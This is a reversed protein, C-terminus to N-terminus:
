HCALLKLQVLDSRRYFYQRAGDVTPGTVPLADIVGLVHRSSRGLASAIDALSVYTARFSNVADDFVRHGHGDIQVAILLGKRVLEYAVQQKLGLVRAADDVSMGLDSARRKAVRWALLADPDLCALGIPLVTAVAGYARLEGGLTSEVLWTAEAESLRAYKLTDRISRYRGVDCAVAVVHMRNVEAQSILWASARQNAIRSVAAKVVGKGILDRLRREPLALERAAAELSYAGQTVSRIAKVEEAGVTCTLRGSPQQATAAELLDAQVLHRVVSPSVDLSRAAAKITLRPHLAIAERRMLKNRQCVLGWWNERLYAEFADRLFQLSPHALEKYLVRYLPSFTRRVSLTDPATAQLASMLSHLGSPWTTLFTTAGCVFRKAIAQEHTGRVQGPHEPRAQESFLALYRVARHILPVPIDALLISLAQGRGVEGCLAQGLAVCHADAPTVPAEALVAGCECVKLHVDAWTQPSQCRPCLDELWVAHKACTCALKITWSGQLVDDEELCRSCWRRRVHNFDSASLGLPPEM